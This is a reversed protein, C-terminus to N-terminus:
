HINTGNCFQGGTGRQDRHCGTGGLGCFDLDQVPPRRATFSCCEVDQLFVEGFFADGPLVHRNGTTGTRGGHGCKAGADCCAIRRSRNLQEAEVQAVPRFHTDGGVKVIEGGLFTPVLNNRRSQLFEGFIVTVPHGCRDVNVRGIPQPQVLGCEVLRAALNRGIDVLQERQEVFELSVANDREGMAANRPLVACEPFGHNKGATARIEVLLRHEFGIRCCKGAVGHLLDEVVHRFKAGIEVRIEGAAFPVQRRREDDFALGARLFHAVPRLAFPQAGLLLRAFIEDADAEGARLARNQEVGVLEHHEVHATIGGGRLHLHCGGDFVRGELDGEVLHLTRNRGTGVDRIRFEVIAGLLAHLIQSFGRGLARQHARQSM